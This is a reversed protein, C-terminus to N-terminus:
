NLFLLVWYFRSWSYYDLKSVRQIFVTNAPTYTAGQGTKPPLFCFFCGYRGNVLVAMGNVLYLRVM